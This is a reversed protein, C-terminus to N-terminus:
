LKQLVLLSHSALDPTADFNSNGFTEVLTWKNDLLLELRHKGYIRKWNYVLHDRGISLGLYLYGGKKLICHYLDIAELDGEPHLKEGYRGLGQHEIASYSGIFDFLQFNNDNIMKNFEEFSAAKIMHYNTHITYKSVTLISKADHALFSAEVWPTLSGFVVGKCILYEM